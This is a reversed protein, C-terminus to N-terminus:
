LWWWGIAGAPCCRQVSYQSPVVYQAHLQERLQNSQPLQNAEAECLASRLNTLLLLLLSFTLM